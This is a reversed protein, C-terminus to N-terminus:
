VRTTRRKRSGTSAKTERNMLEVASSLESEAVGVRTQIDLAVLDALGEEILAEEEPGLEEEEEEENEIGLGRLDKRSKLGSKKTSSKRRGGVRKKQRGRKDSIEDDDDDDGDDNQDTESTDTGDDPHDVVRRGSYIPVASVQGVAEDENMLDTVFNQADM